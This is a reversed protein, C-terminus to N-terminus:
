KEALIGSRHDIAGKSWIPQIGHLTSSNAVGCVLMAVAGYLSRRRIAAEGAYVGYAAASVFLVASIVFIASPADILSLLLVSALCGLSAGALDAFYVRGM